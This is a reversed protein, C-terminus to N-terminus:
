RYNIFQLPVEFEEKKFHNIVDQLDDKNKSSVRVQEDQIQANAKIKLEKIQKVIKKANEKSLGSILELAQKIEGSVNEELDEYKIAKLDIERKALKSKLVDLLAEYKMKNDALLYIKKENRNFDVNCKSGKFDYRNAIEKKTQNIANDAEQLDVESVIDFSYEGAM